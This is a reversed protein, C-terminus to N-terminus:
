ALGKALTSLSDNTEIGEVLWEVWGDGVGMDGEIIIQCLDWM